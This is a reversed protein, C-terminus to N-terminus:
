KCQEQYPQSNMRKCIAPIIIQAEEHLGVKDIALTVIEIALERNKEIPDELCIVLRRCLKDQYFVELVGSDQQQAVAQKLEALAQKRINRDGDSLMNLHRNHRQEFDKYAESEAIAKSASM